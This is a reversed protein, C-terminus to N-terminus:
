DQLYSLLRIGVVVRWKPASGKLEDVFTDRQLNLNVIELEYYSNELLAIFRYLSDFSGTARMTLSLTPSDANTDVSAVEATAGVSKALRELSDLFPVVDSKHAFHSEFDMKEAEVTKISRDITRIESLRNEERQWAKEAEIFVQRNTNISRYLFVFVFCAFFFFLISLILYKKHSQKNM